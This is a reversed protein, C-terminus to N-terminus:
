LVLGEKAIASLNKRREYFNSSDGEEFKVMGHLSSNRKIRWQDLDQIILKQLIEDTERKKTKEIIDGLTKYSFDAGLLTTLHGELRDTIVSEILTIAELYFGKDIPDTIHKFAATYFSHRRKGIDTGPENVARIKRQM